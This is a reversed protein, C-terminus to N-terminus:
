ITEEVSGKHKSCPYTQIFGLIFVMILKSEHLLNVQNILKFKLFFFITPTHVFHDFRTHTGHARM